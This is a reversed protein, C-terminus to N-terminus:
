WAHRGACCDHVGAPCKGGRLEAACHPRTAAKCTAGTDRSTRLECIRCHHLSRLSMLVDRCTICQGADFAQELPVLATCFVGRNHMWAVTYEMAEREQKVTEQVSQFVSASASTSSTGILLPRGSVLASKIIQDREAIAAADTTHLQWPNDVRICPKNPPITIVQLPCLHTLHLAKGAQARVPPRTSCHCCQPWQVVTWLVAHHAAM